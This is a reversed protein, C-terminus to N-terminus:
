NFLIAIQCLDLTDFNSKEMDENCTRQVGTLRGQFPIKDKM